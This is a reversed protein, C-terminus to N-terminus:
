CETLQIETESYNISNGAANDHSFTVEKMRFTGSIYSQAQDDYYEVPVKLTKATLSAFAAHESLKHKRLRFTITVRKNQMAVVHEVDDADNWSDIIRDAKKLLYSGKAIMLNSVTIGNIKIRYGEYM